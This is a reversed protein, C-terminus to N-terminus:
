VPTGGRDRCHGEEGKLHEVHEQRQEDGRIQLADEGVRHAGDRRDRGESGEVAEGAAAVHAPDAIELAGRARLKRGGHRTGHRDACPVTGISHCLAM